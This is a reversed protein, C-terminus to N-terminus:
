HASRILKFRGILARCVYETRENTITVVHLVKLVAGRLAMSANCPCRLNIIMSMYLTAICRWTCLVLGGLGCQLIHDYNRVACSM